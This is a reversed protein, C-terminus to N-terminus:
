RITSRKALSKEQRDLDMARRDLWKETADLARMRERYEKELAHARKDLEIYRMRLETGHRACLFSCIINVLFLGVNCLFWFISYGYM